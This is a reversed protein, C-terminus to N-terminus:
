CNPELEKEEKLLVQFPIRNKLNNFLYRLSKKEKKTHTYKHTYFSSVCIHECM